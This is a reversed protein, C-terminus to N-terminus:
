RIELDVDNTDHDDEAVSQRNGQSRGRTRKEGSAGALKKKKGELVRCGNNGAKAKERENQKSRRSKYSIGLRRKLQLPCCHFKLVCFLFLFFFKNLPLVYSEQHHHTSSQYHNTHRGFIIGWTQVSVCTSHSILHHINKQYGAECRQHLPM